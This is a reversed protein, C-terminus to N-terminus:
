KVIRTTEHKDGFHILGPPLLWVPGSNVAKSRARRSIHNKTNTSLYWNLKLEKENIMWIPFSHSFDQALPEESFTIIVKDSIEKWKNSSSKYKKTLSSLYEAKQKTKDTIDLWYLNRSHLWIQFLNCFYNNEAFRRKLVIIFSM